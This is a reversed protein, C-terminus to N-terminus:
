PDISAQRRHRRRSGRRGGRGSPPPVPRESEFALLLKRLLGALLRQEQESLAALLSRENDLHVPAIQDVLAMGAPTLKVLLGRGDAPDPVRAILGARELRYLRHTIAGSSRMLAMYLETPSLCYPAGSRRLSALVDWSERTLGFEALRANIGGDLYAITRGLRAIVGVPTTDLEPNASAWQALVHDVHDSRAPPAPGDLPAGAAANTKLNM